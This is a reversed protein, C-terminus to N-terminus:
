FRSEEWKLLYETPDMLDSRRNYKNVGPSLSLSGTKKGSYLEFHLMPRCCNSNVKGMYGVRQGMKLEAGLEVDTARKSTMEGYRVVFGSSHKVEIAYTGQYFYYLGRIVTGPAVSLIPEDKYRYLDCAAHLRTGEGRGASFRRMGSNFRHTVKKVTPFECCNPDDLGTIQADSDRVIINGNVYPCQSKAKIFRQVIWGITQDSSEREPFQVKVFTYNIGGITKSQTNNGWGQFQKVKEGAQASFLVEDLSDDRVNLVNDSVCVVDEMGGVIVTQDDDVVTPIPENSPTVTPQHNMGDNNSSVLNEIPEESLINPLISIVDYKSYTRISKFIRTEDFHVAVLASPKHEHKKYVRFIVYDRSKSLENCNLKFYNSDMALKWYTDKLKISTDGLTKNSNDKINIVFDEAPILSRYYLYGQDARESMWRHTTVLPDQNVGAVEIFKYNEKYKGDTIKVLSGNVLHSLRVGTYSRLNETNSNLSGHYKSIRFRQSDLYSVSCHDAKHFGSQNDWYLLPTEALVATSIVSLLLLFQKM